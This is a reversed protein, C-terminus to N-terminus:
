ITNDVQIAKKFKDCFTQFIKICEELKFATDDECFYSALEVRLEELETLDMELTGMEDQAYQLPSFVTVVNTPSEWYLM